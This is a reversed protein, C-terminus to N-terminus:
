ITQDFVQYLQCGKIADIYTYFCSYLPKGEVLLLQFFDRYL